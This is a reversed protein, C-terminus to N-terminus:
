SKFFHTWITKVQEREDVFELSKIRAKKSKLALQHGRDRYGIYAIRLQEAQESSLLHLEAAAAFIRVNDSWRALEPYQHAYALVLYQALFEIDAMGGADQKLDFLESNDSGLHERMKLRM